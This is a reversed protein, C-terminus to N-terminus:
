TSLVSLATTKAESKMAKKSQAAKEAKFRELKDLQWQQASFQKKAAAAAASRQAAGNAQVQVQTPVHAQGVTKVHESHANRLTPLHQQLQAANYRGYAAARGQSNRSHSQTTQSSQAGNAVYGGISHTPQASHAHVLSAHSADGVGFYADLGAMTAQEDATNTNHTNMKAHLDDIIGNPV